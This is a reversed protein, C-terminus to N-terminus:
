HISNIKLLINTMLEANLTKDLMEYKSCKRKYEPVDRGTDDTM